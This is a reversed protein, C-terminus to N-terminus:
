VFWLLLKINRIASIARRYVTLVLNAFKCLIGKMQSKNMSVSLPIHTQFIHQVYQEAKPCANSIDKKLSIQTKICKCDGFNTCFKQLYFNLEIVDKDDPFYKMIWQSCLFDLQYDNSTVQFYIDCVYFLIVFYHRKKFFCKRVRKDM